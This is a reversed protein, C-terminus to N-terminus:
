KEGEEGEPTKQEEVAGPMRWLYSHKGTKPNLKLIGEGPIGLLITDNDLWAAASICPLGDPLPLERSESTQLDVLLLRPPAEKSFVWAGGEWLLLEAGNPRFALNPTGVEGLLKGATGGSPDTAFLRLKDAGDPLRVIAALRLGDPSVRRRVVPGQIKATQAKEVVGEPGTRVNWYTRIGKAEEPDGRAEVILHFGSETPASWLCASWKEDETNPLLQRLQWQPTDATALYLGPSEVETGDKITYSLTHADVVAIGRWNRVELNVPAVAGTQANLRLLTTDSRPGDEIETARATARFVLLENGNPLWEFPYDRQLPVATPSTRAILEGSADLVCVPVPSGRRRPGVFGVYRGDPSPEMYTIRASLLLSMRSLEASSYIAMGVVTALGAAVLATYIGCFWQRIRSSLREFTKDIETATREHGAFLLWGPIILLVAGGRMMHLVIVLLWLCIFLTAVLVEWHWSGPSGGAYSSAWGLAAAGTLIFGWAWPAARRARAIRPDAGFKASVFYSVPCYVFVIGITLGLVIVDRERDDLLLFFLLVAASSLTASLIWSRRKKRKSIEDTV